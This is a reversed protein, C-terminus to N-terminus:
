FSIGVKFIADTFSNLQKGESRISGYNYFYTNQLEVGVHMRQNIHFRFAIKALAGMQSEDSFGEASRDTATLSNSNSQVFAPGLGFNFDFYFIKNFTNIKGYFPSWIALMAVSQDLRRMFPVVGNVRRLSEMDDNDKNRYYNYVFEVGVEENFFYGVNLNIGNTSQFNSSLGSLYGLDAYFTKSKAFEKNQLVYVTKDPDLWLFDYLDKESARSLASFFFSVVLLSGIGIYRDKFYKQWAKIKYLQM